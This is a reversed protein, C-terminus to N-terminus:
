SAQGESLKAALAKFEAVLVAADNQDETTQLGAVLAAILAEAESSTPRLVGLARFIPAFGPSARVTEEPSESLISVFDHKISEDALALKWFAQRQRATFPRNPVLGLDNNISQAIALNARDLQRQTEQKAVKADQAAKQANDREMNAAETAQLADGRQQLAFFASGSAALALVIAAALGALTRRAVRKAQEAERKQAEAESQRAEAL